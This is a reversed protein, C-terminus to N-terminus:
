KNRKNKRRFEYQQLDEKTLQQLTEKELKKREESTTLKNVDDVIQKFTINRYKQLEEDSMNQQKQYEKLADNYFEEFSIKNFNDDFLYSNYQIYLSKIREVFQEKTLRNPKNNM